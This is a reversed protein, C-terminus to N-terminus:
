ALVVDHCESKRFVFTELSFSKFCFLKELFATPKELLLLIYAPSLEISYYDEASVALLTLM